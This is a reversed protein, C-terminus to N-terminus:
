KGVKICFEKNMLLIYTVNYDEVYKSCELTVYM